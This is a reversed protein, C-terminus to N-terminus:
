SMRKLQTSARLFYFFTIIALWALFLPVTWELGSVFPTSAALAVILVIGILSPVPHGPMKVPLAQLKKPELLRRFRVHTLLIVTWVFFMAAVATGYLLLFGETGRIALVVAAFMGLASAGLATLPVGRRDVAGLAM